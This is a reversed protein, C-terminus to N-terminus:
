AHRIRPKCTPMTLTVSSSCPTCIPTALMALFPNRGNKGTTFAAIHRRQERSDDASARPEGADSRFCVRHVQVPRLTAVPSRRYGSRAAGALVAQASLGYSGYRPRAFGQRARLGTLSM